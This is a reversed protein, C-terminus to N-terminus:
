PMKWKENETNPPTPHTEEGSYERFARPPGGETLYVQLGMIRSNAAVLLEGEHVEEIYAGIIRSDENSLFYGDPEVGTLRAARRADSLERYIDHITRM